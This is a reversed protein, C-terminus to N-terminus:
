RGVLYYNNVKLIVQGRHIIFCQVIGKSYLSSLLSGVSWEVEEMKMMVKGFMVGVEESNWQSAM